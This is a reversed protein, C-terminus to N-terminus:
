RGHRRRHRAEVAEFAAGDLGFSAALARVETLAAEDLRGGEWARDLAQDVLYVEANHRAERRQELDLGLGAALADLRAQEADALRTDVLAAAWAVMLLTERVGGPLTERLELATLRPRQLLDAFTGLEQPIFAGMLSEEGATLAGDAAAVEVVMRALIVQEYRRSPPFEGLQRIFEPVIGVAARASVWRGEAGDWVFRPAVQAFAALIGARREEETLPRAPSIAAAAGAGRSSGLVGLLLRGVALRVSAGLSARAEGGGEGGPAPVTAVAQFTDGSLPCRFTANVAGGVVEVRHLLPEVSAWTIESM